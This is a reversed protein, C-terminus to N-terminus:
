LELLAPARAAGEANPSAWSAPLQLQPRVRGGACGRQHLNNLDELRFAPVPLQGSGTETCTVPSTTRQARRYPAALQQVAAGDDIRACSHEANRQGADSVSRRHLQLQM